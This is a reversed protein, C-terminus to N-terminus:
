FSVQGSNKSTDPSVYRSGAIVSPGYGWNGANLQIQSNRGSGGYSISGNIDEISGGAYNSSAAFVGLSIGDGTGKGNYPSETDALANTHNVNYADNVNGTIDPNKYTGNYKYKTTGIKTQQIIAMRGTGPYIPNGHIAYYELPSQEGNYVQPM